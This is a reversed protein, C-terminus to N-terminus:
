AVLTDEVPTQKAEELKQGLIELEENSLTRTIKPFLKEEEEKVHHRVGKVLEGVRNDFDNEDSTQGIELLLTKAEQHEDLAHEILDKFDERVLFFPYLVKEEIHAHLDLEKRIENFYEKRKPLESESEIQNFLENVRKHDIKLLELGNM